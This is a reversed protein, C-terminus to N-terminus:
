CWEEKKDEEGAELPPEGRGCHMRRGPEGLYAMGAGLLLLMRMRMRRGQVMAGDRRFLLGSVLIM